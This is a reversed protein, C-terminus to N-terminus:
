KGLLCWMRRPHMQWVQKNCVSTFRCRLLFPLSSIVIFCFPFNWTFIQTFEYELNYVAFSINSVLILLTKQNYYPQQPLQHQYRYPRHLRYTQMSNNPLRHIWTMQLELSILFLWFVYIVRVWLCCAVGVFFFWWEGALNSQQVINSIENNVLSNSLNDNLNNGIFQQKVTRGSGIVLKNGNSGNIPNSNSSSSSTDMLSSASIVSPMQFHQSSPLREMTQNAYYSTYLFITLGVIIVLMVLRAFRYHQLINETAFMRM